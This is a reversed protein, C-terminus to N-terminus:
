ARAKGEPGTWGRVPTFEDWGFLEPYEHWPGECRAAYLCEGCRPGKRKQVEHRERTFDECVSGDAHYITMVPMADEAACDEYGGLWCLPMAETFARAGRARAADVAALVRPMAEARRPVLEAANEAAKGVIHIFAFQIHRAGADALKAALAPLEALNPRAVVTNTLVAQGLALLNGLGAWARAFSGPADTLRDHVGPTSGHISLAFEDAGAAVLERCYDRDAFRRGNSQVQVRRYGLLRALRVLEPLYPFLTPEGGTFVVYDARARGERLARALEAPAVPRPFRRRLDGQVCFLCQRECAYGLKLDIKNM